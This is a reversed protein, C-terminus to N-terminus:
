QNDSGSNSIITGEMGQPTDWFRLVRPSTREGSKFTADWSGELAPTAGAVDWTGRAARFPITRPGRNGVNHYYGSLSDGHVAAVIRADYDAMGLEVSDGRLTVSSLSDCDSGNCVVGTSGDLELAFRLTGGALDLVARWPGDPSRGDPSPGDPSPTAQLLLLLALSLM